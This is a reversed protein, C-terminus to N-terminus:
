YASSVSCTVIKMYSVVTAFGSTLTALALYMSLRLSSLLDQGDGETNLVDKRMAESTLASLDSFIERRVGEYLSVDGVDSVVELLNSDPGSIAECAANTTAGQQVLSIISQFDVSALQGDTLVSVIPYLAYAGDRAAEAEGMCFYDYLTGEGFPLERLTRYVTDAAAEQTAEVAELAAQEGEAMDSIMEEIDEETLDNPDKAEEPETVDFTLADGLDPPAAKEDEAEVTADTDVVDGVDDKAGVDGTGDEEDDSNGKDEVAEEYESGIRRDAEDLM